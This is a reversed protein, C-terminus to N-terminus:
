TRAATQGHRCIALTHTFEAGFMFIMSSYYVWVIVVVLSGAAGYASGVAAKGLYLGILVKGITFLLATFAAGAWIDKWAITADPVYKFILAFLVTTGGWSILLDILHLV